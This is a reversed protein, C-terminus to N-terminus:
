WVHTKSPEPGTHTNTCLGAATHITVSEGRGSRARVCRAAHSRSSTAAHVIRFFSISSHAAREEKAPLVQSEQRHRGDDPGTSSSSSRTHIGYVGKLVGGGLGIRFSATTTATEVAVVIVFSYWHLLVVGNFAMEDLDKRFCVNRQISIKDNKLEQQQPSSRSTKLDTRPSADEFSLPKRNFDEFSFRTVQYRTARSRAREREERM